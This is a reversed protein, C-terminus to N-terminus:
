KLIAIMLLGAAFCYWAFPQVIQKKYMWFAVHITGMGVAFSSVLGVLCYRLDITPSGAKLSELVEGGFITPVALLFSFYAGQTWSWGRLRAAGITLGSRSLGPILAFAQSLGIWLVDFWKKDQLEPFTASSGDTTLATKQRSAMWLLAGTMLLFYGTYAPSSLALRLPKLLFYAPVLPLLAVSFLAIKKPSCLTQWIERRLFHVLAIWTGAHCALDFGLWQEGNTLGLFHRTLQLHASSSIPFFEGLGQIIGLLLAQVLNM